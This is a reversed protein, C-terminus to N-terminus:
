RVRFLDSTRDWYRGGANGCTLPWKPDSRLPRKSLWPIIHLGFIYCRRDFQSDRQHSQRPAPAFNRERLMANAHLRPSSTGPQPRTPTAVAEIRTAPPEQTTMDTADGRAPKWAVPHMAPSGPRSLSVTLPSAERAPFLDDDTRAPVERVKPTPRQGAAARRERTETYEDSGERSACRHRDRGTTGVHAGHRTHRDGPEIGGGSGAAGAHLEIFTGHLEEDWCPSGGSAGPAKMNAHIVRALM